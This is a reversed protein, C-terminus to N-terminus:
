RLEPTMAPGTGAMWSKTEPETAYFPNLVAFGVNEFDLHNGSREVERAIV